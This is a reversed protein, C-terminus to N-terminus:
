PALADHRAPIMVVEESRTVHANRYDHWARLDADSSPESLYAGLQSWDRAGILTLAQCPRMAVRFAGLLELGYRELAPLLHREIEELYHAPGGFPLWVIEHLVVETRVDRARLHEQTPSYPAPILIRDYGGRRLHLSRNWWEEMAVDRQQDQFQAVFDDTQGRWTNQWINIASPWSGSTETSRFQGFAAQVERTSRRTPDFHLSMVSAMYSEERGPVTRIVEHLYIYPNM